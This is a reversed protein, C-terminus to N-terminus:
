DFAHICAGISCLSAFYIYMFYIICLYVFFFFLYMLFVVFLGIVYLLMPLQIINVLGMDRLGIAPFRVTILRCTM